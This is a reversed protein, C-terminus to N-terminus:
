LDPRTDGGDFTDNPQVGTSVSGFPSGIGQFVYGPGNVLGAFDPPGFDLRGSGSLRTVRLQYQFFSLPDGLPNDSGVLVDIVGRGAILQPAQVSIILGARAPTSAMLLFMTVALWRQRRMAVERRRSAGDSRHRMPSIGRCLM